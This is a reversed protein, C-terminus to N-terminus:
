DINLNNLEFGFLLFFLNQIFTLLSLKRHLFLLSTYNLGLEGENRKQERVTERAVQNNTKLHWLDKDDDVMTEVM